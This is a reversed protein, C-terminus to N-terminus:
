QAAVIADRGVRLGSSLQMFESKDNVINTVVMADDPVGSIEYRGDLLQHGLTVERRQLKNDEVTWVKGRGNGFDAVMAEPVLLAQRLRATTVYVEAQEGLNADEPIRDFAVDIRRRRSVRDSEPEIRAVKGKLRQKLRSRLVIEAADGPKIAGASSEDIDAVVWITKPDALAFVPQGASVASGVEKLRGTVLADYPATLTHFDLVLTQQQERAKADSIAAMAVLMDSNAMNLDAMAADRGAKASEASDASEPNALALKQMRDSISKANSFNANAKDVSATAKQLNAEALQVAAKAGAVQAQQERADLRALVAGKAVHDGIDARMEVIAGSTEFGIQSAIRAEVTGRGFVEVPVDRAVHAIAVPLPRMFVFWAGYGAGAAVILLLVFAFLRKLM